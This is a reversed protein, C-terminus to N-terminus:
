PRFGVPGHGENVNQVAIVESSRVVLGEQNDSLTFVPWEEAALRRVTEHVSGEVKFSGAATFLLSRDRGGDAKQYGSKGAM